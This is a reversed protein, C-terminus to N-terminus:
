KERPENPKVQTVARTDGQRRKVWTTVEMLGLSPERHPPEEGQRPPFRVRQFRRAKGPAGFFNRFDFDLLDDVTEIGQRRVSEPITYRTEQHCCPEGYYHRAGKDGYIVHIRDAQTEKEDKIKKEPKSYVTGDYTDILERNYRQILSQVIFLTFQDAHAQMDFIHDLAIDLRRIKFPPMEKLKRAPVFESVRRRLHLLTDRTPQQIDLVVDSWSTSVGKRMPFEHLTVSGPANIERLEDVLNFNCFHEAYPLLSIRFVVTDFYAQTHIITDFISEDFDILRSM